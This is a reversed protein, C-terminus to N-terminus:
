QKVPNMTKLIQCVYWCHTVFYQWLVFGLIIFINLVMIFCSQAGFKNRGVVVVAFIHVASTCTVSIPKGRFKKKKM